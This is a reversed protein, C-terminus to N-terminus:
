ENSTGVPDRSPGRLGIRGSARRRAPPEDVSSSQRSSLSPIAALGLASALDSDTADVLQLEGSQAESALKILRKNPPAHKEIVARTLKGGSAIAGSMALALWDKLVGVCGISKAFFYGVQEALGPDQPIEIAALLTKLVDAFVQLHAVGGVTGRATYREFHIIESRRLLQGTGNLIGLLDYAGALVLPVRVEIALCKLIDFPLTPRMGARLYLMASAEDVLIAKVRRNRVMSELSRRLEERVLSGVSHISHGDLELEFGSVRKKDILVDGGTTLTRIFFDKWNFNGDLPAKLKVYLVPIFGPDIAMETSYRELLHKRVTRMVVSKGVGSPGVLVVISEARPYDVRRQVEALASSLLAHKVLKDQFATVRPDDSERTM